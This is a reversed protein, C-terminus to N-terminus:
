GHDDDDAKDFVAFLEEAFVFLLAGCPRQEGLCFVRGIKINFWMLLTGM